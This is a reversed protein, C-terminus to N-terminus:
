EGTRIFRWDASVLYEDGNTCMGIQQSSCLVDLVMVPYSKGSSDVLNTFTGRLKGYDSIAQKANGETKFTQKTSISFESGRMGLKRFNHGHVGPRDRMQVQYGYSGISGKMSIFSYSGIKM